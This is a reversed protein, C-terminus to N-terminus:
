PMSTAKGSFMSVTTLPTLPGPLVVRTFADQVGGQAPLQLAEAFTRTLM